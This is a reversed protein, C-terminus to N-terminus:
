NRRSSISHAISRDYVNYFRLNSTVRIGSQHLDVALLRGAFTLTPSSDVTPHKSAKGQGEFEEFMNKLPKEMYAVMDNDEIGNSAKLKKM